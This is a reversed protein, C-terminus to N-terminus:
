HQNVTQLLSDVEKNTDAAVEPYRKVFHVELNLKLQIINLVHVNLFFLVLGRILGGKSFKYKKGGEVRGNTEM